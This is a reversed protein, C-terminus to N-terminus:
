VDSDSETWFGVVIGDYINYKQDSLWLFPKNAEQDIEWTIRVTNHWMKRHM